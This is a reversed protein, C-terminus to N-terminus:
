CTWLLAVEQGKRSGSWKQINKNAATKQCLHGQSKEMEEEMGSRDILDIKSFIGCACISKFKMKIECVYPSMLSCIELSIVYFPFREAADYLICAM